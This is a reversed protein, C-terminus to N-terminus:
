RGGGSKIWRYVAAAFALAVAFWLLWVFPFRPSRSASDETGVPGLADLEEAPEGPGGAATGSSNEGSGPELGGQEEPPSNVSEKYNPAVLPPIPQAPGGSGQNSPVRTAALLPFITLAIFFKKM